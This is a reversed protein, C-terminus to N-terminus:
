EVVEWAVGVGKTVGLTRRLLGFERQAFVDQLLTTLYVLGSRMQLDCEFSVMGIDGTESVAVTVTAGCNQPSFSLVGHKWQYQTGPLTHLRPSASPTTVASSNSKSDASGTFPSPDRYEWLVVQRKIWPGNSTSGRETDAKACASRLITRARNM